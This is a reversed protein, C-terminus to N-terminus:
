LKELMEKIKIELDDISGQNYIVHSTKERKIDMSMQSDIRKVAEQLTLDNRVMLRDIQRDRDTYVLWIEHFDIGQTKLEEYVEFLLPIDLFITKEKKHEELEKKIAQFIFPHTISNLARLETEDSFVIAGLAGRDIEGNSDLIRKGFHELTQKYSPSNKFMLGRAIKDADIVMYGEDKIIESATSKGSAIGGTLGIIKTKTHTM